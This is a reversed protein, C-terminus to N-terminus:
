KQQNYKKIELQVFKFRLFSGYRVYNLYNWSAFQTCDVQMSNLYFTSAKENNLYKMILM